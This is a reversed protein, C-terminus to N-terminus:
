EGVLYKLFFTAFLTKTTELESENSFAYLQTLGATMSASTQTARARDTATATVTLNTILDQHNLYVNGTVM